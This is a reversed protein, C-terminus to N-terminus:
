NKQLRRRWVWNKRKAILFPHKKKRYLALYHLLKERVESITPFPNEGHGVGAQPAPQENTEFNGRSTGEGEGPQGVATVSQDGQQSPSSFDLYKRWSRSDASSSSQPAIQSPGTQEMVWNSTAGAEEEELLSALIKNESSTWSPADHTTNEPAAPPESSEKDQAAAGEQGAGSPEPGAAMMM